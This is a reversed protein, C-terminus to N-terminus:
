QNCNHLDEICSLARSPDLGKLYNKKDKQTEELNKKINASKGSEFNYSSAAAKLRSYLWTALNIIRKGGWAGGVRSSMKRFVKEDLHFIVLSILFRQSFPLFSTSSHPKNSLLRFRFINCVQLTPINQQQPQFYCLYSVIQLYCM